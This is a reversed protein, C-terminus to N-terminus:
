GESFVRGYSDYEARKKEDSLISYAENVEKFKNADGGKKDPHFKHALTRYAHKIDEKSANRPVGLLEYFDKM